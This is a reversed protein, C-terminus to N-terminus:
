SRNTRRSGLYRKLQYIRNALDARYEYAGYLLALGAVLALTWVHIPTTTPEETFGGALTTTKASKATKAGKVASAKTSKAKAAAKAKKTSVPQKIVNAANPTLSTTWYWKGEALAWAQGDKASQYVGSASISNGLPDLLKAQSSTNSLSLDTQESYFATFSKPKLSSGAPFTYTKITTLGTQLKSGSLDFPKDNPNYLEIFEDITDNGVGDPNPLLETIQPAMLGINGLPIGTISPAGSDEAINVITAPPETAPLLPMQGSLVPTGSSTVLGCPNSPDPQVTQWSGAGPHEVAPNYAEDLPLRRLFASTNSPLTQAGSAATKSWAVYDQLQTSVAQGTGGQELALLQIMGATSSLGLSESQVTLQYCLMLGADNVMFYGHPPLTGSLSILRSSTAKSLDYNNFYQLQYHSMDLADDTANYLTIFQGNSSTIKLQSITLSPASALEAAVNVVPYASVIVSGLLFATM